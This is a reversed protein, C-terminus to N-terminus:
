TDGSEKGPASSTRAVAKAHEELAVYEAYPVMYVTPEGDQILIFTEGAACRDITPEFNALLEDVTIPTAGYYSPVTATTRSETDAM